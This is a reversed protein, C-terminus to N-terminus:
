VRVAAPFYPAPVPWFRPFFGALFMEVGSDVRTALQPLNFTFVNCCTFESIFIPSYRRSGASDDM